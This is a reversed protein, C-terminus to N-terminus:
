RSLQPQCSMEKQTSLVYQQGPIAHAEVHRLLRDVVPSLSGTVVSSVGLRSALDCLGRWLQRAVAVRGRHADAIWLGEAHYTQILTWCGVIAGDDTEVVLVHATPPLCSIVEALGTDALKPWEEVPLLRSIM